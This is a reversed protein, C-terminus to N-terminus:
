SIHNHTLLSSSPLGIVGDESQQLLPSRTGVGYETGLVDSNQLDRWEHHTSLTWEGGFVWARPQDEEGQQKGATQTLDTM